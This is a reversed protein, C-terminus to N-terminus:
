IATRNRFRTPDFDKVSRRKLIACNGNALARPASPSQCGRYMEKEEVLKNTVEDLGKTLSAVNFLVCDRIYDYLTPQHIQLPHDVPHTVVILEPWETTRVKFIKIRAHLIYM